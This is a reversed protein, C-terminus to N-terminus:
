SDLRKALIHDAVESLSDFVAEPNLAELEERTDYGTTVCLCRVNANHAANIDFATDGVFWMGDAGVALNELSKLVAEPHPKPHVVDEPGIGSVFLHRVGLSELIVDAYKRLKSTAFGLRIGADALQELCERAGPLLVTKDCAITAYHARFVPVCVAPDCDAIQTFQAEITFGITEVIRNRPPRAIGAADFAHFFSEVIAETSDILTGDLDFAVARMM